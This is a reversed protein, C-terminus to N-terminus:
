EAAAQEVAACQSAPVDRARRRRAEGVRQAAHRALTYAWTRFSCQWRFGPLGRWLDECFAGFADHADAEADLLAAIFGLVEPGYGRVAATAASEHDGRQHRERIERELAERDVGM